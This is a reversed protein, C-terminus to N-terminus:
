QAVIVGYTRALVAAVFGKGLRLGGTAVLGPREKHHVRWYRGCERM